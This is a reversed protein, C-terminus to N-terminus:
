GQALRPREVNAAELRWGDAGGLLLNAHAPFTAFRYSDPTSYGLAHALAVRIVNAHVCVVLTGGDADALGLEIEPWVRALLVEDSEGGPASWRFPDSWYTEASALWREQFQAREIGQWQGRDIERLGPTSRLPASTAQSIGRGMALARELDSSVVAAIPLDRFGEAMARTNELGEASLAVDQSGYAISHFAEAVQAHRVLWRAAGDPAAPRAPTPVPGPRGEPSAPPELLKM